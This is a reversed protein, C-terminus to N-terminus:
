SESRQVTDPIRLVVEAKEVDIHGNVMLKVLPMDVTKLSHSFSLLLEM